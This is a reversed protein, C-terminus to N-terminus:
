LYKRGIDRRLQVGTWQVQEALEYSKKIAERHSSGLGVANVVRGGNVVWDQGKKLTGAHLFYSSSTQAQIDGKIVTGKVVTQPYGEAAMVVCAAYLNKWKVQPIEGKAVTLFVQAWDGDLLPMLVQTEPDGFRVNFELVSPGEPTMMLGIFLVGRYVMKKEKLHKVTPEVVKKIIIEHEESLIPIPAITGMGGTNPGTEGEGIKKHDQALPLSVYSEGNTLIFYSLEFGKQFKELLAKEGASGLVKKEFLEGAAEKLDALTQCIYVGKGAALGDAKLVYPPSFGEAAKLTQEVTQVVQAPATPIKGEVLFQKNFIKSGELKASEQSPGFVAFGASRLFNSLGDVLCQEPGIVVLDFQFKQCLELVTSSHSIDIKHCIAEAMGDSGPAAHVETVSPSFYLARVLAHERGGQGIVLVRM